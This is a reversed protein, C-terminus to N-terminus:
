IINEYVFVVAVSSQFTLNTPGKITGGDLLEYDDSCAVSAPPSLDLTVGRGRILPRASRAYAQLQLTHRWCHAIFSVAGIMIGLKTHLADEVKVVRAAAAVLVVHKPLGVPESPIHLTWGIHLDRRLGVALTHATVAGWRIGGRHILVLVCETINRLVGKIFRISSVVIM